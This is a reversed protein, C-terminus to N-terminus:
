ELYFPPLMFFIIEIKDTNKSTANTKDQLFFLLGAAGTSGVIALLVVVTEMVGVLVNKAPVAVDVAVQVCVLETTIVAVHVAVLVWVVTSVASSVAVGEAVATMNVAVAVAVDVAVM